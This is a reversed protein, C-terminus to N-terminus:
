LARVIERSASYKESIPVYIKRKKVRKEQRQKHKSENGKIKM